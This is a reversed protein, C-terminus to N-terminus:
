YILYVQTGEFTLDKNTRTDHVSQPVVLKSGM